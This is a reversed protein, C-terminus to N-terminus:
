AIEREVGTNVKKKFKSGIRDLLGEGSMEQVLGASVDPIPDALIEDGTFDRPAPLSRADPPVFTAETGLQSVAARAQDVYKQYIGKSYVAWADFDTGGNSIAFAARANFGPDTLQSADRWGGEAHSRIQMLGLSPGWGGGQINVDGAAGPDLGSEGFAVALATVLAEGKFGASALVRAVEVPDMTGGGAQFGASAEPTFGGPKAATSLGSKALGDDAAAEKTKVQDTIVEHVDEPQRGFVMRNWRDGLTEQPAEPATAETSEQGDWGFKEGFTGDEVAAEAEATFQFHWPEGPVDGNTLGYNAGVRAFCDLDGEMDVAGYHNGEHRSTGPDAVLIGQARKYLLARQEEITRFGSGVSSGSCEALTQNVAWQFAPHFEAISSSM